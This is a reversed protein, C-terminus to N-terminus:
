YTRGLAMHSEAGNPDLEVMAEAEALAVDYDGRMLALLSRLQLLRPM